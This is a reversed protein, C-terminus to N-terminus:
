VFYYKNETVWQAFTRAPKGTLQEVTDLITYASKPPNKAMGIIFYEIFDDDYGQHKSNRRVQEETLEILEIPKGTIDSIQRVMERISLSQPGTLNYIKKHHGDEVLAKVAVAAIDAEHIRVSLTEPFGTRVIGENQISDAWFYLANKMFESPRIITWEMGSEKIINEIPNGEYDMLAVIRKVNAEKALQIIRQNALFRAETQESQTILFLSDISKLHVELTEPNDLDGVVTQAKAPLGTNKHSRSLARVEVQSLLLQKVIHEGVSGTAGTVLIKM